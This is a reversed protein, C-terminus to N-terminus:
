DAEADAAYTKMAALFCVSGMIGCITIVLMLSQAPGQPGTFVNDM